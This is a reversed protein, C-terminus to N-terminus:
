DPARGRRRRVPGFGGLIPLIPDSVIRGRRVPSGADTSRPSDDRVGYGTQAHEPVPRQRQAIVAAMAGVNPCDFLERASLTVEFDRQVRAAIAFAHLSEGGLDFLDDDVGIPAVPLVEEWLRAVRAELANRPADYRSDSPQAM